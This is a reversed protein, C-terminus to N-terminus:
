NLPRRVEADGTSDSRVLACLDVAIKSNSRLDHLQGRASIM